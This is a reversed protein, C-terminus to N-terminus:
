GTKVNPFWTADYAVSASDAGTTYFQYSPVVFSNPYTAATASTAGEVQAWTNTFPAQWNAQTNVSTIYDQADNTNSFVKYKM